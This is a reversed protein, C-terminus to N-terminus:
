IYILYQGIVNECNSCNEGNKTYWCVKLKFDINNQTAFNIIKNAKELRSLNPDVSKLSGSAFKISNLMKENNSTCNNARDTEYSSGIYINSFNKKYAIPALLTSMSIIHAISSWWGHNQWPLIKFYYLKGIDNRYMERCNSKIFFYEVNLREKLYSFYIDLNDHTVLDKTSVDGGWINVLVPKEQVKEVLASTADLGGTFFLFNAEKNKLYNCNVVNDAIVDFNTSMYPFMQHYADRIKPLSDYFTKDIFKVKIPLDIGMSVTIVNGVFPITLIAEPINSINGCWSPYEIYLFDKKNKLWKLYKEPASIHYEVKGGGLKNPFVKIETLEISEM